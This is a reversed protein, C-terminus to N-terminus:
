SFPALLARGLPLWWESKTFLDANLRLFHVTLGITIIAYLKRCVLVDYFIALLLPALMLTQWIWASDLGVMSAVFRGGGVTAISYTALFMARKHLDSRNRFLIAAALFGAFYVMDILPYFVFSAAEDASGVREGFRVALLLAAFVGIVGILFGYGALWPGLILHTKTRGTFILSAQSIYILLWGVFLAAHLHILWFQTSPAPSRGTVASFYQPWFGAIAFVLMICGLITFFSSKRLRKAVKAPAGVAAATANM